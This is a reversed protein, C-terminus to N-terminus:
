KFMQTFERDTLQYSRDIKGNEISLQFISERNVERMQKLMKGLDSEQFRPSKLLNDVSLLFNEKDRETHASIKFELFKLAFSKEQYNLFSQQLQNLFNMETEKEYGSFLFNKFSEILRQAAPYRQYDPLNIIKSYIARIRQNNDKMEMISDTQLAEINTNLEIAVAALFLMRCSFYDSTKDTLEGTDFRKAEQTLPHVLPSDPVTTGERM